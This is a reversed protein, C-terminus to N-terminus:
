KSLASDVWPVGYNRDCDDRWSQLRKEVDRPLWDALEYGCTDLRSDCMLMVIDMNVSLPHGDTLVNLEHLRFIQEETLPRTVGLKHKEDYLERVQAPNLRLSCERGKILTELLARETYHHENYPDLVEIDRVWPSKKAALVQLEETFQGYLHEPIQVKIAPCSAERAAQAAQAAQGEPSRAYALIEEIVSSTTAKSSTKTDM